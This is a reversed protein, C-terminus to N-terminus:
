AVRYSREPCVRLSLIDGDIAEVITPWYGGVNPDDSEALVLEGISITLWSAPLKPEPAEVPPEPPTLKLGAMLDAFRKPTIKPAFGNGSAYVNGSRVTKLIAKVDAAPAVFTSLNLARAAKTALKVDPETFAAARPWADDGYGYVFLVKQDNAATPKKVTKVKATKPKSTSGPAM